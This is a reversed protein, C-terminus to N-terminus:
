TFIMVSLKMARSFRVLVGVVLAEVRLQAVLAQMLVMELRRCM